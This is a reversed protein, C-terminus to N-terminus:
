LHHENWGRVREWLRKKLYAFVEVKSQGIQAPLGLYKDFKPVVQFPLINQITTAVEQQINPSFVMTSKEMNIIQGSAAAYKNLLYRVTEAEQPTAQCFLITEDAFCLNSIVPASPAIRVGKMNVSAVEREVM